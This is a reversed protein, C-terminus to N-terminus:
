CPSNPCRSPCINYTGSSAGTQYKTDTSCRRLFVPLDACLFAVALPCVMSLYPAVLGGLRHSTGASAVCAGLLLTWVFASDAIGLHPFDKDISVSYMGDSSLVWLMIDAHVAGKAVASVQAPLWGTLM